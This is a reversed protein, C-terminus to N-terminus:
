LQEEQRTMDVVETVVPPPGLAVLEIGSRSTIAKVYDKGERRMNVEANSPLSGQQRETLLTAMQGM